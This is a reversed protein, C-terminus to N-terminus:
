KNVVGQARVFEPNLAQMQTRVRSKGVGAIDVISINYRCNSNQETYVLVRGNSAWSPSEVMYGKAIIRELSGDPKMIGIAFGDGTGFKCFAIWDGRPSWVPTAYRGRGYSIRKVNSGDSNMIYNQQNGSRDSNFVIRKGDPSYCPSTDICLNNTLRKLVKTYLNFIYISSIGGKSISFIINDGDPSFRAAYAMGPFEALLTVDILSNNYLTGKFIAGAYLFEKGKVYKKKYSSFIVTKGDPSIRPGTVINDNKTLNSKNEGDFDMVVLRYTKRGKYTEEAEVYLMRQDFYGDDGTISKYVANSILHSVKRMNNNSSAKLTQHCILRKCTTNYIKVNIAIQNENIYQMDIVTLYETGVSNWSTYSIQQNIFHLDQMHASKSMINFLGSMNLDNQVIKEIQKLQADNSNTCSIAIKIKKFVSKNIDVVLKKTEFKPSAFCFTILCFNTITAIILLIGNNFIRKSTSKISSNKILIKNM